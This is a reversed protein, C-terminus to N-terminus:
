PAPVRAYQSGSATRELLEADVLYRRLVATDESFRSLREGLEAEGLVEGPDLAQAVVHRLLEEREGLNAPYRDIRGEATLFREVGTRRQPRPATALVEAFIEGARWGGGDPAILGAKALSELAHRRRSPSLDSGAADSGLVIEAYVRRSAENALAAFVPRWASDSASM